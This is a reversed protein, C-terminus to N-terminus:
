AEQLLESLFGSGPSGPTGVLLARDLLLNMEECSTEPLLMCAHCAALNLADVGAADAEICLPDSSCWAARAVSELLANGLREPSAQGVVGGLSGASDTTATYILLGAMSESVYLRERLSAAPYGSDLSWQNILAHALTHILVLRPTIRRDPADGHATFRAAYNRDLFGARDTAFVSTEWASLRAPDVTLFVGEGTVEIAPLWGTPTEYLPARREPPDGPSPPLVRTFAQLVRVERLRTVLMVRDFWESPPPGVEPAEVCVFDQTRTVEEKGRILAEYEQEKLTTATEEEPAAERAKRQTVALVLDDVSYPTGRVLGMGEITPRLAAEPIHRLVNWQRNLVKYAGESWPPISLASRVVPFWVNSAGRQLTRPLQECPETTNSLWPRRGTCKTVNKLAAKGFAGDLSTAAVGCRCSLVIDKLSATRGAAEISMEHRAADTRSQGGHLWSFYPFDDIHGRECCVVFRSPVLSLGCKPCENRDASAFFSHRDLRNCGPCSYWNPFRLVPIDQGHETAPPLAFAGVNLERELRPEHILLGGHESRDVDWRDIGAIMFSEDEIAVVAGVGYTTVLQSRRVSGKVKAM